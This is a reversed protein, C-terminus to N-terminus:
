VCLRTSRVKEAQKFQRVAEPCDKAFSVAPEWSYKETPHKWEVQYFVGEETHKQKLIRVVEYHQVTLDDESDNLDSNSSLDGKNQGENNNDSSNSESEEEILYRARKKSNNINQLSSSSTTSTTTTTIASSTSKKPQFFLGNISINNDENNENEESDSSNFSDNYEEPIYEEDSQDFEEVAMLYNDAFHSITRNMFLPELFLKLHAVPFWKQVGAGHSPISNGEAFSVKYRNAMPTNDEGCQIIFGVSNWSPVKPKGRKVIVKHYIYVKDHVSFKTPQPNRLVADQIM